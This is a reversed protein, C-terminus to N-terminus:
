NERPLTSLLTKLGPMFNNYFDAFKEKLVEAMNSLAM